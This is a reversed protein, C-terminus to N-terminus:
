NIQFELLTFSAPGNAYVGHSRRSGSGFALGIRATDQLAARFGEPDQSIAQGRVNTWQEDFRVIMTHTGPALPVVARSPAYWRYSAYRGRATWNDDRRQFYLSVTAPEGPTEDAIFRTGPAADVRYRVTIQRAASLPGTGTTMADIQGRGVIPFDFALAGRPARRPTSPMGISYNRGRVWPGIEWVSAPPPVALAAPSAMAAGIGALLLSTKTMRPMECSHLKASRFGITMETFPRGDAGVM